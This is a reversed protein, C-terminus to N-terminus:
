LSLPTGGPVFLLLLFLLSCSLLCQSNFSRGASSVDGRSPEAAEHSTDDRPELSNHSREDFDVGEQANGPSKVCNDAVFSVHPSIHLNYSDFTM